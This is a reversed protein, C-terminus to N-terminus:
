RPALHAALCRAVHGVERGVGRLPNSSLGHSSDGHVRGGGGHQGDDHDPGSGGTQDSGRVQDVPANLGEDQFGSRGAAGRNALPRV